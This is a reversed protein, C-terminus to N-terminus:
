TSANAKADEPGGSERTSTNPRAGCPRPRLCPRRIECGSVRRRPAAAAASRGTRRERKAEEERGREGRQKM